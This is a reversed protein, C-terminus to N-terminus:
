LEVRAMVEQKKLADLVALNPGEWTNVLCTCMGGLTPGKCFNWKLIFCGVSIEDYSNKNFPVFSINHWIFIYVFSIHLIYYHVLVM